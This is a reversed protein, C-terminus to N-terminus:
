AVTPPSMARQGTIRSDQVVGLWDLADDLSSTVRVHAGRQVLLDEGVRGGILQQPTELVAVRLDKPIVHAVFESIEMHDWISASEPELGSVATLDCLLLNRECRSAQEVVEHALGHSTTQDFIGELRVYLYGDRVEYLAKIADSTSTM